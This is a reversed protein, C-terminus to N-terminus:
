YDKKNFIIIALFITLFMFVASSIIPQYDQIGAGVTLEGMYGALESTKPILYYLADIITEWFKSNILTYFNERAHLLPSLIFFILYALMMALISSRMLIGILIIMGYLVSFTFTILPIIYLYNLDWRGFRLGIILWIGIILYAINVLVVLTGGLFKGWVLQQRSVPKSLFLDITGKELMHPIFSSVSFISLFLGGVFLFGNIFHKIGQAIMDDPNMAAIKQGDVTLEPVNIKVLAMVAAIGLLTLSSVIFFTIFIKKSLAERFTMISLTYINKM